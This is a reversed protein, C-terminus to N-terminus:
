AQEGTLVFDIKRWVLIQSHQHLLCTLISSM